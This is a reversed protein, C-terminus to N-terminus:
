NLDLELQLLPPTPSPHRIRDQRFRPDARSGHRQRIRSVEAPDTEKRFAALLARAHRLATDIELVPRPYAKDLLAHAGPWNWPTHLWAEPVSALEPVWRRIFLGQPDHDRGQKVPNYIRLQNIGTTGSQMQVQPWHIGPEYDTFRRALIPATTRWDLWLHYSAFSMLMARMRFNIWGTATLSRMCADLFPIGTEGATWAQLLARDPIRPRLTEAAAHMCDQELAPQDELKQMFHDRWALRSAFSKLSGAWARESAELQRARAEAAQAVERISLTGYALHASLRSCAQAAPLPSSMGQRYHQGRVQLFSNLLSLGKARGGRQRGPCPDDTLNLAPTDPIEGPDAPGPLRLGAPAPLQPAFVRADRKAAWGDRSKLRRVVGCQPLEVWDVGAERAWARVREDRAYTWLNGTEEHSLLTRIRYQRCLAALWDVADGQRVLLDAGCRRLDRRVQQLSEALFRWQRASTDPLQWYDPEVLYVPLVPGTEAARTLAPHDHLRLDRKFWLLCNM